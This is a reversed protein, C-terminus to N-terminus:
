SDLSSTSPVSVDNNSNTNTTSCNPGKCPASLVDFYSSTDGSLAESYQEAQYTAYHYDGETLATQIQKNRYSLFAQRLAAYPDFAEDIFADGDLLRSRRNTYWTGYIGWTLAAPNFYTPPYALIAAPISVLGHFTMPGLVPLFLYPAQKNDSYYALTIGFDNYHHPLGMHSAPDFLGGIGITTNVALRTLDILSWNIKGQLLDNAWTIPEALNDFANTLGTQLQPPTAAKYVKAVPRAIGRDFVQGLGYLQRNLPEYPDQPESPSKACGSLLTLVTLTLSIGYKM